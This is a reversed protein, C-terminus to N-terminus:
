SLLANRVDLALERLFIGHGTIEFGHTDKINKDLDAIFYTEV